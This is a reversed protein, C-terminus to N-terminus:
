AIPSQKEAPKLARLVLRALALSPSHLILYWKIERATGPMDVHLESDVEYRHQTERIDQTILGLRELKPAWVGIEQALYIPGTAISIDTQWNSDIADTAILIELSGNELLRTGNPLSSEGKKEHTMSFHAFDCLEHDTLEEAASFVMSDPSSATSNALVLEATLIAIIRPGIDKSRSLCVARYADFVAASKHEDSLLDDLTAAIDSDALGLDLLSQCFTEFFQKARHRTWREIVHTQVTKESIQIVKDLLYGAVTTSVPDM